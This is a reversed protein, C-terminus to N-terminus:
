NGRELIELLEEREEDQRKLYGALWERVDGPVEKMFDKVWAAEERLEYEMDVYYVGRASEEDQIAELADIDKEFKGAFQNWIFISLGYLKMYNVLFLLRRFDSYKMESKGLLLNRDKEGCLYFYTMKELDTRKM